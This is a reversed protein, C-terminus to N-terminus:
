GIAMSSLGLMAVVAAFLVFVAGILGVWSLIYVLEPAWAAKSERRVSKGRAILYALPPFLLMWSLRPAHYGRDALARTDVAAFVWSLLLAAVIGAILGVLPPLGAMAMANVVAIFLGTGLIPSLALLWIGPTHPSGLDQWDRVYSPVTTTSRRANAATHTQSIRPVEIVEAASSHWYMQDTVPTSPTMPVSSGTAVPAAPAPVPSAAVQGPQPIVAAPVPEPAPAPAPAPEPEPAPAEAVPQPQPVPVPQPEPVVDVPPAPVIPTVNDFVPRHTPVPEIVVGAPAAQVADEVPRVHDTWTSGDWWRWAGADAPDHYWGAAPETM